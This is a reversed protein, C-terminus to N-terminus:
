LEKIQKEKKPPITVKIRYSNESIKEVAEKKARAIVKLEIKM